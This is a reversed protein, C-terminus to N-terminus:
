ALRRTLYGPRSDEPGYGDDKVPVMPQSSCKWVSLLGERFNSLIPLEMIRGNLSGDVVCVALKSFNSINGRAGPGDDYCNPEESPQTEILRKEFEEKSRWEDTVAAGSMM